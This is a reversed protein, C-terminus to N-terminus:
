LADALALFLNKQAAFRYIQNEPHWQVALVFRLDPREVGEIVGDDARASVVLGAGLVGIAQHHRSNVPHRGGGMIASLHTGDLVTVRHAPESKDAPRSVHGEMHQILTGGAHTVNLLQMGRCIALVPTNAALAERLLRQELEDRDNEPAQSKPHPEQGYLSSSLDTGGSLVLGQVQAMSAMPRAPTVLVPEMGAARVAAAYPEIDYTDHYTLAVRKMM